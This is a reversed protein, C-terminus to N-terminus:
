IEFRPQLDNIYQPSRIKVRYVTRIDSSEPNEQDVTIVKPELITATCNAIDGSTTTREVFIVFFKAMPVVATLQTM